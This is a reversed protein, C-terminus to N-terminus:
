LRREDIVYVGIWAGLIMALILAWSGPLVMRLLVHLLGTGAVLLILRGHGKLNPVLMAIFAAYIAIGCSDSVITPLINGVWTGLATSGVWASFLATNAGLLFHITAGKSLSFLVFSEDCLAYASLLKKPTSAARLRHMMATSMVLHRLNLVFTALIMTFIGAGQAMMEVVMFQSAGAMVFFSMAITQLTTLGTDVAILGFSIGIPLFGLCIPAAAQLGQVFTTHKTSTTM